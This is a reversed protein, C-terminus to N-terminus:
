DNDNVTVNESDSGWTGSSVSIQVVANGDHIGNDVATITFTNSSSGANITLPTAVTARNTNASVVTVTVNNRLTTPSGAPDRLTVTGTMSGGETASTPSISLDLFPRYLGFTLVTTAGASVIFNSITKPIYNTAWATTMYGAGEPVGGDSFIHSTSVRVLAYDTFNYDDVDSGASLPLTGGTVADKVVATVGGAQTAPLTAFAALFFVPLIRTFSLM